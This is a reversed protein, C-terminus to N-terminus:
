NLLDCGMLMQSTITKEKRFFAEHVVLTGVNMIQRRNGRCHAAVMTLADPEFLDKSAKAHKLRFAIFRETEQETLPEMMLKVTLRTSIPTMVSLSLRKKLTEDGVIILSAATTKQPPSVLLSCLDLMSERELLQADDVVIIPHIPNNGTTISAIHKQLKVLLPMSRGGTEVGMKDAIARLLGSRLLGGYHIVVPLYHNTDLQTLLHHLLTSKGTGSPGTIAFSKGYSLFSKAQKIVHKDRESAFPEPLRSTDSFPHCKWGFHEAMASHSDTTM